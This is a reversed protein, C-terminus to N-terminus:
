ITKWLESDTPLSCNTSDLSYWDEFLKNGAQCLQIANIYNDESRSIVVVDNLKLSQQKSQINNNIEIFVIDDQPICFVLVRAISVVCTIWM